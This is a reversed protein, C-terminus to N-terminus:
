KREGEGIKGACVHSLSALPPWRLDATMVAVTLRGRSKRSLTTRAPQIIPMHTPEKIWARGDIRKATNASLTRADVPM